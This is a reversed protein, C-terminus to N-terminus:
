EAKTCRGIFKFFRADNEELASDLKAQILRHMETRLHSDHRLLTCMFTLMTKETESGVTARMALHFLTEVLGTREESSFGQTPPVSHSGEIAISLASVFPLLLPSTERHAIAVCVVCAKLGSM